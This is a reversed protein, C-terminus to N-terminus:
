RRVAGLYNALREAVFAATRDCLENSGDESSVFLQYPSQTSNTQRVVVELTLSGAHKLDQKEVEGPFATSERERLVLVPVTFFIEVQDASESDVQVQALLEVAIDRAAMTLTEVEM